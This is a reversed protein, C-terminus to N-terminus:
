ELHLLKPLFTGLFYGGIGAGAGVLLVELGSRIYPLSALKGKLFGIIFLTALMSIVIAKFGSTFFYPALPIIAAILYSLGVYLADGMATGPPEPDLGLEKQIMTTTFSGNHKSLIATLKKADDNSVGEKEFLLVMEEHEENPYKLIASTEKAIEANHVQKEAQSSLYAGTAMSFAGALAESIGAVIVFHNNNFAGAVSTVVGLPVLLGDQAGFVLERIQSLKGIRKKENFVHEPNHQESM